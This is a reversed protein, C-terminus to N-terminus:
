QGLEVISEHDDEDVRVTRFKKGAPALVQQRYVRGDEAFQPKDKTFIWNEVIPEIPKQGIVGQGITGRLADLKEQKTADAPIATDLNIGLAPAPEDPCICGGRNMGCCLEFADFVSLRNAVSLNQITTIITEIPSLSEGLRTVKTEPGISETKVTVGARKAAVYIGNRAKVTLLSEGVQLARIQQTLSMQTSFFLM